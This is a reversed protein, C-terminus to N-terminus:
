LKVKAGLCTYYQFSKNPKQLQSIALSQAHCCQGSLVAQPAPNARQPDKLARHKVDPEKVTLAKTSNRNLHARQMMKARSWCFSIKWAGPTNMLPSLQTPFGLLVTGASIGMNKKFSEPPSAPERPAETWLSISTVAGQWSQCTTLM